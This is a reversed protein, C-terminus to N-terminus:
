RGGRVMTIKAGALRYPHTRYNKLEGSDLRVVFDDADARVIVGSLEDGWETGNLTHLGYEDLPAEKVCERFRIRSGIHERVTTHM